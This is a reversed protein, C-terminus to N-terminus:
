RKLRRSAIETVKLSEAAGAFPVLAAALRAEPLFPQRLAAVARHQEAVRGSGVASCLFACDAQPVRRAGFRAEFPISAARPLECGCYRSM